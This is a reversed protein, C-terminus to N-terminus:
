RHTTRCRWTREIAVFCYFSSTTSLPSVCCFSRDCLLADGRTARSSFADAASSRTHHGFPRLALRAYWLAGRPAGCNSSCYGANLGDCWRRPCRRRMIVPLAALARFRGPRRNRCPQSGRREVRAGSCRPRRVFGVVRPVAGDVESQQRVKPVGRSATAASFGRARPM